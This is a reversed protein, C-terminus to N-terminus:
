IEDLSFMSYPPVFASKESSGTTKEVLVDQSGFQNKGTFKIGSSLEFEGFDEGLLLHNMQQIRNFVGLVFEYYTQKISCSDTQSFEAV